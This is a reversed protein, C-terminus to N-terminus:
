RLATVFATGATGRILRLNAINGYGNIQVTDGAAIKHHTTLATEGTINFYIPDTAHTATVLVARAKGATPADAPWYTATALAVSASVTPTETAFAQLNDEIKGGVQYFAM